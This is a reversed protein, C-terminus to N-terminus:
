SSPKTDMPQHTELDCEFTLVQRTKAQGEPRAQGIIDFTARQEKLISLDLYIRKTQGNNITYFIAMRFPWYRRSTIRFPNSLFSVLMEGVSNCLNKEIRWEASEYCVSIQFENEYIKLDFVCGEITNCNIIWYTKKDCNSTIVSQLKITKFCEQIISKM